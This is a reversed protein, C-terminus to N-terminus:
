SGLGSNLLSTEFTIESLDSGSRVRLETMFDKRNGSSRESLYFHQLIKALGARIKVLKLKRCFSTVNPYPQLVLAPARFRVSQRGSGAGNRVHSSVGSRQPM